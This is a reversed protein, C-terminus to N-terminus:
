STSPLELNCEFDEWFLLCVFMYFYVVFLRFHFHVYWSYYLLVSLSSLLPFSFQRTFSNEQMFMSLCKKERFHRRLSGPILNDVYQVSIKPFEPQIPFFLVKSFIIKKGFIISGYWKFECRFSRKKWAFPLRELKFLIKRSSDQSLFWSHREWNERWM